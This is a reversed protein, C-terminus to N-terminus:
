EESALTSFIIHKIVKRVAIRGTKSTGPCDDEHMMSPFVNGSDDQITEWEGGCVCTGTAIATSLVSLATREAFTLQLLEPDVLVGLLVMNEM